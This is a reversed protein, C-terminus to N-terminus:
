RKLQRWSTAETSNSLITVMNTSHTLGFVGWAGSFASTVQKLSSLDAQIVEIGKESLAKAAPSDPNRTLARITFAGAPERLLFDIVSRGQRFKYNCGWHFLRSSSVTRNGWHNCHNKDHSTHLYTSSLQIIGLVTLVLKKYISYFTAWKSVIALAEPEQVHNLPRDIGLGQVNSIM